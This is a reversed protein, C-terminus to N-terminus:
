YTLKRALWDNVNKPGYGSYPKKLTIVYIHDDSDLMPQLFARVQEPSNATDVAYSSESLKAWDPYGEKLRKTINPRRVENNLDYTILLIAM